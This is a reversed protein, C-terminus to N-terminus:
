EDCLGGAINRRPNVTEEITPVNFGHRILFNKCCAEAEQMLKSNWPFESEEKALLIRFCHYVAANIANIRDNKVLEEYEVPGKDLEQQMRTPIFPEYFLGASNVQFQGNRFHARWTDSRDEGETYLTFSVEPFTQSIRVMDAKCNYWADDADLWHGVGNEVGECAFYCNYLQLEEDIRAYLEKTMPKAMLMFNSCYGM